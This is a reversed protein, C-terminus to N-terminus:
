RLAIGVAYLLGFVAVLRGTQALTHNLTPGDTSTLMTRAPIVAFPVSLLPLLIWPTVSRTLYQVCPISFALFLLLLYEYRSATRGLRVAMTLKGAQRDTDIDRYNNVVIIATTLFGMPLSALMAQVSWRQAQAFYTGNVAVVGFFIFVFLDGLGIYALPFPGATYLVAFLISAIGIWLITSGAIWVLYLGLLFTLTFVGIMANKVTAPAILGSQTVRVPGIRHATDAGKIFDFYDNALNTGIQLLLACILAVCAPIVAMAGEAYAVATGVIVPAASAPLTKPRCALIWAQIRSIESKM